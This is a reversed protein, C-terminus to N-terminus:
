LTHMPEAKSSVTLLNELTTIGILVGVQLTPSNESGQWCNAQNTKLIKQWKPAHPPYSM